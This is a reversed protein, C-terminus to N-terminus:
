FNRGLVEAQPALDPDPDSNRVEVDHGKRSLDGPLLFLHHLHRRGGQPSPRKHFPSDHSEGDQVGKLTFDENPLFGM